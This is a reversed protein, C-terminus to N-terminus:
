LLLRDRRGGRMLRLIIADLGWSLHIATSCGLNLLVVLEHIHHPILPDLRPRAM